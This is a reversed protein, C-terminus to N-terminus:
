KLIEIDFFQEIVLENEMKINTAEINIQLFEKNLVEEFLDINASK